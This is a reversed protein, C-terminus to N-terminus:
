FSHHGLCLNTNLSKDLNRVKLIHSERTLTYFLILIWGIDGSECGEVGHSM